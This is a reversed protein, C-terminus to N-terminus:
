KKSLLIDKSRKKESHCKECWGIIIHGGGWGGRIQEFSATCFRSYLAPQLSTCFDCYTEVSPNEIKRFFPENFDIIDVWSFADPPLKRSKEYNM